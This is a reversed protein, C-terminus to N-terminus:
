KALTNNIKKLANYVSEIWIKLYRLQTRFENRLIGLVYHLNAISILSNWGKNKPSHIEDKLKNPFKHQAEKGPLRKKRPINYELLNKLNMIM